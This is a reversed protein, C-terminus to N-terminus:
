CFLGDEEADFADWEDEGLEDNNDADATEFVQNNFEEESLENNNDADWESFDGVDNQDYDTFYEDTGENWEDESLYDDGDADWEDFYGEEDLATHFEENTISDDENGDWADFGCENGLAEVPSSMAVLMILATSIIFTTRKILYM